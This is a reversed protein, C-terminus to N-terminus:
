KECQSGRLCKNKELIEICKEIDDFPLENVIFDEPYDWWRLEMLKDIIEQSFRYKIVKAPVGVAIAYPPIEKTVVAGAGIIVGDNIKVGDMVIANTGIWVDNGINIPNQSNINQIIKETPIIMGCTKHSYTFTHTTFRDTPHQGLGLLVNRGISSYKGITTEKINWIKAGNALYSHIGINYKSQQIDYGTLRYKERLKRRIKPIPILNIFFRLLKIKKLRNM